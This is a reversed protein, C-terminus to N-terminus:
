KRIAGIVEDVQVVESTGSSWKKLLKLLDDEGPCGNVRALVKDGRIILITPYVNIKNKRVFDADKYKDKKKYDYKKLEKAIYPKKLRGELVTCWYCGNFGVAVFQTSPKISPGDDTDKGYSQHNALTLLVMLMMLIGLCHKM